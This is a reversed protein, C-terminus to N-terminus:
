GFSGDDSNDDSSYEDTQELTGELGEQEAKHASSDPHSSNLSVWTDNNKRRDQQKAFALRQKRVTKFAPPLPADFGTKKKAKPKNLQSPKPPAAKQLMQQRLKWAPIPKKDEASGSAPDATNSSM